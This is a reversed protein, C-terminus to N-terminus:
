RERANGATRRGQAPPSVNAIGHRLRLRFADDFACGTGNPMTAAPNMCTCARLMPMMTRRAKARNM